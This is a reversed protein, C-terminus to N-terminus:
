ALCIKLMIALHFIFVAFDTLNKSTSDNFIVIKRLVFITLTFGYVAIIIFIILQYDSERYSNFSIGVVLCISFFCSWLWMKVKRNTDMGTYKLISNLKEKYDNNM